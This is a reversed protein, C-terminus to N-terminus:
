ASSPVSAVSLTCLTLCGTDRHYSISMASECDTVFSTMQKMSLGVDVNNNCADLSSSYQGVSFTGHSRERMLDAEGLPQKLESVLMVSSNSSTTGSSQTDDMIIRWVQALMVESSAHARGSRGRLLLTTDDLNRTRMLLVLFQPNLWKSRVYRLKEPEEIHKDTLGFFHIRELKIVLPSQMQINSEVSSVSSSRWYDTDSTSRLYSNNSPTFSTAYVIASGNRKILTIRGFSISGQEEGYINQPKWISPPCQSIHVIPNSDTNCNSSSGDGNEGGTSSSSSGDGNEVDRSSAENGSLFVHCVRAGGYDVLLLSGDVTGVLLSGNQHSSDTVIDCIATVSQLAMKGRDNTHKMGSTTDLTTATHQRVIRPCHAMYYVDSKSDDSSSPDTTDEIYSPLPPMINSTQKKRIHQSQISFIVVISVARNEAALSSQTSSSVSEFGYPFPILCVLQRDQSSFIVSPGPQYKLSINDDDCYDDNDNSCRKLTGLPV